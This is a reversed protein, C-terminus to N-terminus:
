NPLTDRVRRNSSPHSLHPRSRCSGLLSVACGGFSLSTMMITMPSPYDAPPNSHSQYLAALQGCHALLVRALQGVPPSSALLFAVYFCVYRPREHPCSVRILAALVVGVQGSEAKLHLQGSSTQSVHELPPLQSLVSQIKRKPARYKHRQSVSGKPTTTPSPTPTPSPSLFPQTYYPLHLPSTRKVLEGFCSACGCSESGALTSDRLNKQRGM